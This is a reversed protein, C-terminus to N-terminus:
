SKQKKRKNKARFRLIADAILMVPLLVYFPILPWQFGLRWTIIALAFLTIWSDYPYSMLRARASKFILAAALLIYLPILYWLFGHLYTITALLLLASYLYITEFLPFRKPKSLRKM